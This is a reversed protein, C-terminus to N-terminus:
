HLTVHHLVSTAEEGSGLAIFAPIGTLKTQSLFIQNQFYLITIPWKRTANFRIAFALSFGFSKMHFSNTKNAYM